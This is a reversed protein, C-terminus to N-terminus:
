WGTPSLGAIIPRRRAIVMTRSLGDIMGISNRRTHARMAANVDIWRHPRVLRRLCRQAVKRGSLTPTQTGAPVGADHADVVRLGGDGMSRGQPRDCRRDAPPGIRCYWASAGWVAVQERSVRRACRRRLLAGGRRPAEVTETGGAPRRLLDLVGFDGQARARQRTSRQARLTRAAFPFASRWLPASRHLRMSAGVSRTAPPRPGRPRRSISRVTPPRATDPTPASAARPVRSM